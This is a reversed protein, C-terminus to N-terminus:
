GKQPRGPACSPDQPGPPGAVLWGQAGRGGSVAQGPVFQFLLVLGEGESLAPGSDSGRTGRTSM